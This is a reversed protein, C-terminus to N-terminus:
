RFLVYSLILMNIVIAIGGQTHMKRKSGDWFVVYLFTSAAVAFIILPDVRVYGTIVFIGSLMFGLAAIVCLAAATQKKMLVNLVDKFLRSNEPWSFDKELEFYKLSHGMYLLHVLGNLLYFIGILFNM